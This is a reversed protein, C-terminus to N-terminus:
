ATAMVAGRSDIQCVGFDMYGRYQIGLQSFDVDSTEITPREVGNLYGIGFAAVDRPDGFLYWSSASYGSFSDSSLHPVVLPQYKGKFPNGDAEMLAATSPTIAQTVALNLSSFLQDAVAELEPPVVLYKPQVLVPVGQTDVMQRMLTVAATLGSVSLAASTKLNANDNHFFSGTNALVLTWFIEELKVAAGRGIMRPVEDFASLDDNILETRTLGFMKAYTAIQFTFSSEGLTGHHIEGGPGVEDFKSDGTMRYGTHTKFDNASLKRAVVRAVSPVTAYSEMVIKNSAAGLTGALETTSFSARIMEDRSSPIERHAAQLSAKCLDLMHTARMMKGAEVAHEGLTKVALEEHGMHCLLAAEITRPTTLDRQSGHIAPGRPLEDHLRRLEVDRLQAKLIANEFTTFDVEGSAARVMVPELQQRIAPNSFQTGNWRALIRQQTTLGERDWPHRCENPIEVNEIQEETLHPTKAMDRNRQQAAITVETGANAGVPVLSIERLKGARIVTLGEDGAKFTRGNVVVTQGARVSERRTPMFGISAQPMVGSRALAIARQGAPTADTLVGSVLIKGDRISAQGQGAIDDMQEGHNALIPIQGSVDAASLDVVVIGWGPLRIEGGDYAIVSVSPRKDGRAVATIECVGDFRILADSM